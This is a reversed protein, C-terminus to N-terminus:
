QINLRLMVAVIVPKSIKSILSIFFIGLLIVTNRQIMGEKRM